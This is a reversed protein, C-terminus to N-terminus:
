CRMHVSIFNFVQTAALLVHEEAHRELAVEHSNVTLQFPLKHAEIAENLHWITDVLRRSM